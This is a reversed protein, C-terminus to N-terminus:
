SGHRRIGVVNVSAYEVDHTNDPTVVPLIAISVTGDPQIAEMIDIEIYTGANVQGINAVTSGFETPRTNWTVQEDFSGKLNVIRGGNTADSGEVVYLRLKARHV